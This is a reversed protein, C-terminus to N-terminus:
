KSFVIYKADQFRYAGIFRFFYINAQREERVKVGVSWRCAAEKNSQFSLM